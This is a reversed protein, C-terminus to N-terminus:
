KDDKTDNKVIEDRNAYADVIAINGMMNVIEVCELLCKSVKDLADQYEEQTIELVKFCM